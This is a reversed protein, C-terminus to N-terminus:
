AEGDLKVVKREEELAKMNRADRQARTERNAEFAAKEAKLEAELNENKVVPQARMKSYIGNPNPQAVAAQPASALGFMLGFAAVAALAQVPWVADGPATISQVDPASQGRLAAPSPRSSSGPTVFTLAASLLVTAVLCVSLTRAM